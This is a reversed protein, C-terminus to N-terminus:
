EIISNLIIKVAFDSLKKSLEEMDIQITYTTWGRSLGIWIGNADGKGNEVYWLWGDGDNPIIEALVHYTGATCPVSDLEKGPNGNNDTYYTFSLPVNSLKEEGNYVHFYPELDFATGNEIFTEEYAKSVIIPYYPCCINEFLIQRQEEWAEETEARYGINQYTLHNLLEYAAYEMGKEDPAAFITHFSYDNGENDYASSQTMNKDNVIIICDKYYENIDSLALNKAITAAHYSSDKDIEGTEEEYVLSFFTDKQQTGIGSESSICNVTIFNFYLKTEKFPETDLITEILQNALENFEKQEDKTFGEGYIVITKNNLEDSAGGYVSDNNNVIPNTNFYIQYNTSKKGLLKRNEKSYVSLTVTYEGPSIPGGSSQCEEQKIKKLTNNEYMGYSVEYIDDDTEPTDSTMTSHYFDYINRGYYQYGNYVIEIIYDSDYDVTFELPSPTGDQKKSSINLSIHVPEIKYNATMSCADYIDNGTFTAEVTYRGAESPIHDLEEGASDYYTLTLSDGLKDGTIEHSGKRIIFYESMDMGNQSQYFEDAYTQFFIKTIDSNRCFAKRLEEKCIECFPYQKGLYQMKCSQHPIYWGTDANGYTYIGVGNKGIFRSWRIKNPDSEQTLNAAEGEYIFAYYEDKLNAVTHGLEHLMMELSETNLSAVCHVGGSGGYTRSNVIYVNYDAYPMYEAKLTDGKKEGESSLCLLRDLGSTWFSSEFYTNKKDLQAEEWTSASDGRAGSEKSITGLAYIKIIDEFEDYPSTQMIYNATKKAEKYFKDQENETFGDGLVLLVFADEDALDANGYVLELEGVLSNENDNTQTSVVNNEEAFVISKTFIFISSSFILCSLLLIIYRKQTKM